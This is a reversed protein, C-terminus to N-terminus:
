REAPPAGTGSRGAVVASGGLLREALLSARRVLEPYSRRLRDGGRPTRTSSV